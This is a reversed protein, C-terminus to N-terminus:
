VTGDITDETKDDRLAELIRIIEKLDSYNDTNTKKTKM